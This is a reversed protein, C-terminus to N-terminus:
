QNNWLNDKMMFELLTPGCAGCKIDVDTGHLSDRVFFQPSASPGLRKEQADSRKCTYDSVVHM